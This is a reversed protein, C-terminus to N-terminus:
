RYDINFICDAAGLTLSADTTSNCVVCGLSPCWGEMPFTFSFSPFTGSGDPAVKLVRLPVTANAPQADADFLMIYQAAVNTSYGSVMVVRPTGALVRSNALAQNAQSPFTKM